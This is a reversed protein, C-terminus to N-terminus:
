FWQWLFILSCSIFCLTKNHVPLGGLTYGAKEWCHIPYAGAVRYGGIPNLLNPFFISLHKWLLTFLIFVSACCCFCSSGIQSSIELSASLVICIVKIIQLFTVADDGQVTVLGTVTKDVHPIEIQCTKRYIKETDEKIHEHLLYVHKHATRCTLCFFFLINIM